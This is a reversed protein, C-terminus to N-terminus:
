RANDKGNGAASPSTGSHLRLIRAPLDITLQYPWLLDHGLILDVLNLRDLESPITDQVPWTSLSLSGLELMELSMNRKKLRLLLPPGPGRLQPLNRRAWRYSVFTGARDGTDVLVRAASGAGLQGRALCIQSFTWVPIDWIAPPVAPPSADAAQATV